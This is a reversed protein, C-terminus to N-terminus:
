LLDLALFIDIKVVLLAILNRAELPVICSNIYKARLM